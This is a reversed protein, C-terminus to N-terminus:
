DNGCEGLVLSANDKAMICRNYDLKLHFHCNHTYPVDWLCLSYNSHDCSGITIPSNLIGDEETTVITANPDSSKTTSISVSILCWDNNEVGWTSISPIVLPTGYPPNTDIDEDYYWEKGIVNEITPFATKTNKDKLNVTYFYEKYYKNLQIEKDTKKDMIMTSDNFITMEAITNIVENNDYDFDSDFNSCPISFSENM